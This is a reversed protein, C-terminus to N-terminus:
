FDLGFTISYTNRLWSDRAALLYAFDLRLHLFRVGVGLSGYSPAYSKQEGYHYGARFQLLQMLAYEVGVSAQVGRVVSPTFCYGAEAALTVEHADSLFTDLAAGAKFEVPLRMEADGLATGLNALKAGLRVTSYHGLAEIPLSWAACLDAALADASGDPRGFHMYRGVIGVAFREGLRRSYGLDFAEDREGQGHLYRRWGIQLANRSNWRWYGSAAYYDYDRQGYYSTSLQLPARSFLTFAANNYVTHADSLTTMTIGGMGLSGADITPFAAEQAELRVAGLVALLITLLRKM